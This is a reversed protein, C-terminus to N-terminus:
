EVEFHADVKRIRSGSWSGKGEPFLAQLVESPRISGSTQGFRTVLHLQNPAVVEIDKIYPRIDVSQHQKARRREIRVEPSNKLHSVRYPLDDSLDTEGGQVEIAYVQERMTANLSPGKGPLTWAQTLNIGAPLVENMRVLLQEPTVFATLELDMYEAESEVGVPQPPSLSVRMMPHHGQSYGVPIEARKLARHILTALDLHSLFAAEGLKTFRARIRQVTPPAQFKM